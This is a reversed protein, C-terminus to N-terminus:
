LKHRKLLTRTESSFGNRLEDITATSEEIVARFLPSESALENAAGRCLRTAIVAEPFTGDKSMRVVSWTAM